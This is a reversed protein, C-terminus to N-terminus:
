STAIEGRGLQEHSKLKDIFSELPVAALTQIKVTGRSALDVSLHAVTENDPAELITIFDYPGLVAYQALVQCGMVKVEDDVARLRDPHSHLTQGGDGVLTSLLIYTPM